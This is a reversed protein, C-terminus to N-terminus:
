ENNELKIEVQAQLINDKKEVNFFEYKILNSKIFARPYGPADLM